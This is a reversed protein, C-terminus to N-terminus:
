DIVQLPIVFFDILNMLINLVGQKLLVEGHNKSVKELTRISNEAIDIYELNQIKDCLIIVGGNNVLSDAGSPFHDLIHRLSATSHVSFNIAFITKLLTCCIRIHFIFHIYINIKNELFSLKKNKKSMIDPNAEKRMCKLIEPIFADIPFSSENPNEIVSLETCLLTIGDVMKGPDNSRLDQLIKKYKVSSHQNEYMIMDDLVSSENENLNM